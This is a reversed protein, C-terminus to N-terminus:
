VNDNSGLEALDEYRNGIRHHPRGGNAAGLAVVIEDAGPADNINFQLTLYHSRLGEDDIHMMPIVIPSAPGGRTNTFSLYSKANTAKRYYNGFHLTHILASAQEIEGNCGVTAAKGYAQVPMNGMIGMIRQTLEQGLIPAIRRIEPTLNEVFGQGAWPNKIIAAVAVMVLPTPAEKGGEILTEEQFTVIKRVGIDTLSPNTM